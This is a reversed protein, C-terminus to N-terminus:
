FRVLEQLQLIAEPRAMQEKDEVMVERVSQSHLHKERHYLYLVMHLPVVVEVEMDKMEIVKRAPEVVVVV